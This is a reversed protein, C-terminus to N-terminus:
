GEIAWQQFWEADVRYRQLETYLIYQHSALRRTYTPHRRLDEVPVCYFRWNYDQMNCASMSLMNSYPPDVAVLLYDFDTAMYLRSQTPHDNVHGRSLQTECDIRTDKGALNCGRWTLGKIQFRVYEGDRRKLVMDSKDARPLGTTSVPYRAVLNEKLLKNIACERIFGRMNMDWIRFNREIFIARLVYDSKLDIWASTQPLCENEGPKLPEDLFKLDQDIGLQAFNNKWPSNELPLYLPSAIYETHDEVRPLKEKPVIMLEFPQYSVLGVLYDAFSEVRHYYDFSEEQSKAGHTKHTKYSVIGESCGGMYPTKLQLTHGHVARDYDTDGGIEECKVGNHQMVLDFLVEFTHGKITREVQSQKSIIEDMDGASIQMVTCLIKLKEEPPLNVPKVHYFKEAVANIEAIKGTQINRMLFQELTEQM